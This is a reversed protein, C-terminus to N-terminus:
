EGNIESGVPNQRYEEAAAASGGRDGRVIRGEGQIEGQSEGSRWRAHQWSQEPRSRKGSVTQPHADAPSTVSEAQQVSRRQTHRQDTEHQLSRKLRKLSQMLQIFKSWPARTRGSVRV